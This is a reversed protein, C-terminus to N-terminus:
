IEDYCNSKLKDIIFGFRPLESLEKFAPNCEVAEHMSKRITKENRPLSNGLDLESLWTDLLDFYSDGHLKMPYINGVVTETYLELMEIASDRKGVAMCTQAASLLFASYLGPHLRKLDFAEAIKLARKITEDLRTPNETCLPLYSSFLNYLVVINQFIGAQLVAKAEENKGNARYAAAILPENPLNLTVKEGLLSFVSANDGSSICCLAQMYAALRTLELDESEVCVRRFLEKAEECLALAEESSGSLPAHNILLIGMQTLLPYCAFYKKIVSRCSNLVEEFPKIAFDGSLRLYLKRIEEKSLQPKYDMLEDVSIGFYSALQPLFTVDPYSQGTEWKSVSAKSVGIFSALEDQTIGKERRKFVIVKAINIEKM